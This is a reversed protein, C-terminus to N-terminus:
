PADMTPNGFEDYYRPSTEGTEKDVWIPEGSDDYYGCTAAPGVCGDARSPAPAPQNEPLLHPNQEWFQATADGEAQAAAPDSCEAAYRTTGDSWLAPGPTGFLCEVVYPVAVLEPEPAM